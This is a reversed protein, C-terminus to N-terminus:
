NDPCQQPAVGLKTLKRGISALATRYTVPTLSFTMKRKLRSVELVIRTSTTPTLLQSLEQRDLRKIRIGNIARLLDGVHLGADFAPSPYDIQAVIAERPKEAHLAFIGLIYEDGSPPVARPVPQNFNSEQFEKWKQTELELRVTSGARDVELDLQRQEDPKFLLDRIQQINLGSTSKGNVELLQDGPFLGARHASFNPLVSEVWVQDPDTVLIASFGASYSDPGVAFGTRGIMRDSQQM